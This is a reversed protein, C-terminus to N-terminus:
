QSFQRRRIHCLIQNRRRRRDQRASHELGDNRQAERQQRMVRRQNEIRENREVNQEIIRLIERICDMAHICLQNMLHLHGPSINDRNNM